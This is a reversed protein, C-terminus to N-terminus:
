TSRRLRRVIDLAGAASRHSHSSPSPPCPDPRTAHACRRETALRLSANIAQNTCRSSAEALVRETREILRTPRGSGAAFLGLAGGVLIGASILKREDQEHDDAQRRTRRSREGRRAAIQKGVFSPTSRAPTLAAWRRAVLRSVWNSRSRKALSGLFQGQPTRKEGIICVDNV